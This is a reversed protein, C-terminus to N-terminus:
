DEVTAKIRATPKKNLDDYDKYVITSKQAIDFHLQKFADEQCLHIVNKGLAEAYGAEYYAGDCPLTFDVIVFRATKIAHFLEPMIWNNTEYESMPRIHYGCSGVIKEIMQIRVENGGFKLALFADKTEEIKDKTSFEEIGKGTLAFQAHDEGVYYNTLYGQSDLYTVIFEFAETEDEDNLQDSVFFLYNLDNSPLTIIQGFYTQFRLCYQAFLVAIQHPTKPFWAEISEATVIVITQNSFDQAIESCENTDGIFFVMPKDDIQKYNHFIYCAAKFCFEENKALRQNALLYRYPGVYYLLPADYKSPDGFLAANDNLFLPDPLFEESTFRGFQYSM